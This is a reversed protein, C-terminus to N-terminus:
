RSYYAESLRPALQQQAYSLLGPLKPALRAVTAPNPVGGARVLAALKAANQATIGESMAGAVQGAALSAPGFAMTGATGSLVNSQQGRGFGLKGIKKMWNGVKTGQVVEEMAKIEAESFGARKKKNNLISRFQVRLGNEFGSAQQQAKVIAEEVVESRRLRGWMERAKAIDKSAAPSADDIFADLANAIIAGGRQEAPNSFDARPIGTLQRLEEVQGFTLPRQPDTAVDMVDDMVAATKPMLRPNVPRSSIENAAGQAADALGERPLPVGDLQSYISKAARRLQDATPANAAAVNALKKRSRSNLFREIGKGAAPGLSGIGASLMAVQQANKAREAAGGEGEAFGYVGGALGSALAAKGTRALMGGKSALGAAPLALAPAIEAGISLFPHEERMAEEDRRYKALRDDYTGRGIMEDFKASAEDGVLGLTLAEGGMNLLTAAKEGITKPKTARKSKERKARELLAAKLKDDAM